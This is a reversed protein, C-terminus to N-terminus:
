ILGNYKRIFWELSLALVMLGLIIRFDILSVVNEKSKQIPTYQKSTVLDNILSHVNNPFYLAGSTNEALMQLKGYTAPVPQEEPNFDLIKFLGSRKLNEDEVTVTFGYSGADLDSLDVEFYSGKLLMPSARSFDNDVGTVLIKINANSNFNYSGDFHLARIKALGSNDFTLPFDLELRSRQDDSNLYVMLKGIFDDFNEFNQQNRYSQVRWKWSNEGFLVAHKQKGDTFISFLPSDLDVGKIRQFLITEEKTKKRVNGLSSKLPPFDTVDFDGLGFIGFANNPVPLVEETQNFNEKSFNQQIRNLFGWHTKTGTITFTNTASKAIFDYVPRFKPGPQYLIFIDANEYQDITATPKLITVSRQENSEISKKLAGIDPHPMDSIIAVNTKEDIVEIATEKSNNITNRENELTQVEIKLPKVGVTKAEIHQTITKSNENAAFALRERHVLEGDLSISVTGLIPEKGNYLITAEVPFKNGLFAYSNSNVLGISIDKHATTDGVVVPYVSLGENLNIYGYDKGLTQNGDTILIVANTNNAFIEDVTALANAIDTNKRGFTLTDVQQIQSGFAYQQIDFRERLKEDHVIQNVKDVISDKDTAHVMSESDDVLLVLNAKELFYDHKTFKPNILLLLACFLAIFRLGALIVKLSGKRPNKYFYQFFVVTLAAMAALVILLVTQIEM